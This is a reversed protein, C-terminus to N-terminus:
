DGTQAGVTFYTVRDPGHEGSSESAPPLTIKAPLAPLPLPSEGPFQPTGGSALVRGSTSRLQIYLGPGQARLAALDTPTVQGGHQLATEVVRHQGDLSRDTRDILFSSLAKYTAVDAVLLGAAASRTGPEAHRM